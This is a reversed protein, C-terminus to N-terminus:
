GALAYFQKAFSLQNEEAIIMQGKREHADTRYWGVGQQGLV